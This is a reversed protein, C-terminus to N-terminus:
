AGQVILVVVYNGGSDDAFATDDTYIGAAGPTYTGIACSGNTNAASDGLTADTFTVAGNGRAGGYIVATQSTSMPLPTATSVPTSSGSNRINTSLSVATVSAATFVAVAAAGYYANSFTGTVYGNAIDTADLAKYGAGGNTNSGSLHSLTTFGSPANVEWGNNAAYVCVDSVAAGAPLPVNISNANNVWVAETGVLVPPTGGGGGATINVEVAGGGLDTVTVGTGTFNITFIGTAVDVGDQQITAGDSNITVNADLTGGGNLGTGAIIERQAAWEDILEQAQQATIGEGIDIQRQQAWKIFYQTPFGREDVIAFNQALPQLEGPM